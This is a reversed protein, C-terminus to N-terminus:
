EGHDDDEASRAIYNGGSSFRGTETGSMDLSKSAKTLVLRDYPYELWGEPWIDMFRTALVKLYNGWVSDLSALNPSVWRWIESSVDETTRLGAKRRLEGGMLSLGYFFSKFVPSMQPVNPSILNKFNTPDMDEHVVKWARHQDHEYLHLSGVMHHYEGVDVGLIGAVYNQIMTFNFIDYPMGLWADNSRMYTIGVLKDERVLFQMSVTCPIDDSPQPRPQWIQIVAQRSAPDEQLKRIVYPLQMVFPPGYAGDFTNLPPSAFKGISLNYPTIVEADNSGLMIWLWEAVSFQYNLKRAPSHLVNIRANKLTYHAGLIESTMKGRPESKVGLELVDRLACRYLSDIGNFENPM